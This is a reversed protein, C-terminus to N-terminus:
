DKASKCVRREMGVNNEKESGYSLHYGGEKLILERIRGERTIYPGGNYMKEKATITEGEKSTSAELELKLKTVRPFNFERLGMKFIAIISKDWLTTTAHLEM